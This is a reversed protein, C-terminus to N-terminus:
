LENQLAKAKNPSKSKTDSLRTCARQEESCLFEALAAPRRRYEEYIQEEGFEGLYSYCMKYLRAPWPGGTMMVSMTEQSKLGPGAFRKVGGVEQVGYNEWSQSCSNELTDVYESESLLAAPAKASSRKSEAKTLYEQMQFAIVRCADCRLHEPMHASYAEEANFHPSTASFATESVPGSDGLPSSCSSHKRDDAARLDFFTLVLVASLLSKM